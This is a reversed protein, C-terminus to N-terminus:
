SEPWRTGGCRRELPLMLRFRTGGGDSHVLSLDGHHARAIKRAYHLGIGTGTPKTTFYPEFVKEQMERAIGVGEDLVDILVGGAADDDARAEIVVTQGPQSAEIANGILVAVAQELLHSDLVGPALDLIRSELRVGRREAQPQSARVVREILQRLDTPGATLEVPRNVLLLERIWRECSDVVEIIKECQQHVQPDDTLHLQTSQACARIGALPNRMNHAVMRTMEGLAAEREQELLKRQLAALSEAMTNFQTALQGLEDTTGTIVRHGLDGAAFRGAAEHLRLIPRTIWRQVGLFALGVLACGLIINATLLGVIFNQAAYARDHAERRRTALEGRAERLGDRLTAITAARADASTGTGNSEHLQALHCQFEALRARDFGLDALEDLSERGVRLEEATLEVVGARSLAADFEGLAGALFSARAFDFFSQDLYVHICWSASLVSGIMFLCFVGTLLSLRTRLKM